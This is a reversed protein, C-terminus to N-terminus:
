EEDGNINILRRYLDNVKGMDCDEPLDSEDCAKKISDELKTSEDMLWDFNYKGSRVDRLYQLKEGEFKVLPVGNTFINECSLLLRFLHQVNKRDYDFNAGNDNSYRAENREALWKTFSRYDKLQKQYEDENFYVVGVFRRLEEDQSLSSYNIQGNNQFMGSGNCYMRFLGPVHEVSAVDVRNVMRAMNKDPRFPMVDRYKEYGNPDFAHCFQERTPPLMMAIVPDELYVDMEKTSKDLCGPFGTFPKVIYSKFNNDFRTDLWLENIERDRLLQRLKDVGGENLYKDIYHVKKNQGRCKKIQSYAYGCFSNMCKKTIFLDRHERLLAYEASNKTVSEMDCFLYEMATPNAKQLMTLFKGIEYYTTDHTKDSVSSPLPTLTFLEDKNYKFLGGVDVDSHENNTGYMHSGRICEFFAKNKAEELNM